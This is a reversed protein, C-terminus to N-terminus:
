RADENGEDDSDTSSFDDGGTDLSRNCAVNSM